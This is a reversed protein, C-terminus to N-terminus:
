LNHVWLGYRPTEQFREYKPFTESHLAILEQAELDSSNTIRGIRM